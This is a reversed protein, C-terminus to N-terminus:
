QLCRSGSISVRRLRAELVDLAERVAQKREATVSGASSEVWLTIDSLIAPITNQIYKTAARLQYDAVMSIRHKRVAIIGSLKLFPLADDRSLDRYTWYDANSICFVRLGSEPV